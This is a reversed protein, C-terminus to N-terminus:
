FEVCAFGGGETRLNTVQGQYIRGVCGQFQNQYAYCRLDYKFVQGDLNLEPAPVLEQAISDGHVLEEFAKKAISAGKFTMKSGFARKPKFFLYKRKTWVEDRNSENLVITQPLFSLITEKLHSAEPVEEWFSPKCWEVFNEKDALLRYEYPQPSVAAKKQLFIEKLLQSKGDEFYFDTWRNYVFDANEFASRDQIDAIAVDCGWSKFIERYLLFEVYMRQESPKEDTIVIKKLPRHIGALKMEKEFCKKLDHIDFNANWQAGHLKFMEWGLGLFSANTNIEILKIKNDATVHFDYSMFVGQNGPKVQPGFKQEVWKQYAPLQRLAEFAEIAIQIQGRIDATLKIKHPSLMNPAIINEINETKLAPYQQCLHAAFKSSLSM